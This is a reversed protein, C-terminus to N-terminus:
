SLYCNGAFLSFIIKKECMNLWEFLGTKKTNYCKNIHLEKINLQLKQILTRYILKMGTENSQDFLKRRTKNTPKLYKPIKELMMQITLYLLRSFLRSIIHRM